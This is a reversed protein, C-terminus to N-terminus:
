DERWDTTTVRPRRRGAAALTWELKRDGDTAVRTARVPMTGNIIIVSILGPCARQFQVGQLYVISLRGPVQRNGNIDVVHLRNCASAGMHRQSM